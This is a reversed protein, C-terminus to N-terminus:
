GTASGMLFYTHMEGKGKITIVGRDEFYFRDHLREWVEKSVQINGPIGSSEMRSATNVTDGWIDYVFKKEGIVGAIAEGSHIGIRLKFDYPKRANIRVMEAQMALALKAAREAPNPVTEPLGAVAMYADGVTKIKELGLHDTLRDFCSFIDNLLAVVETASVRSSFHTFNVLDAFVIAVDDYREAILTPSAKLQEAIVQPLINFLLRDSKAQEAKLQVNIRRLEMQGVVQRSLAQLADLQTDNLSQPKSDLTCLTGLAYGDSTVLPAGAYFQVNPEEIVIPNRKFRDDELANPVVMVQDPELIAHACFSSDRDTETRDFGLNSKFWQRDRDILSILAIPTGCIQAAIATLDDFDQEPLTDLIDYAQLAQLRKEENEPLPAPVALPAVKQSFDAQFSDATL